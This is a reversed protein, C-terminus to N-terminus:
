RAPLDLDRMLSGDLQPLGLITLALNAANGNRLPQQPDAYTPRTEGPDTLQDAFTAYLDMGPAFGPAIVYFPVTYNRPDTSDSHGWDVGGHDATLILAVRDRTRPSTNLTDLIRGLRADVGRLLDLWEETGWGHAHGGPDTDTFHLLTLHCPATDMQTMFADVIQQSDGHAILCVDIKRTGDDPPVPDPAGNTEDWSQEFIVFKDKGAFLCTLLGHDHAVDFMGNVYDLEPNGSNHLTMDAAPYANSVYGHHLDPPYGDVALV